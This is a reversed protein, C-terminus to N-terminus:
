DYISHDGLTIFAAADKKSNLYEFIIRFRYNISFSLRGQLSGHLKHVRLRTHNRPNKFLEIKDYVDEQLTPPLKSVDRVFRRTYEVRIM